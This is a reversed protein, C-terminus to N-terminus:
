LRLHEETLRWMREQNDVSQSFRSSSVPQKRVWYHGTMGEVEKSSALYVTTAAGIEPEVLFDSTFRQIFKVFATDSGGPNTNVTGPNLANVTVPLGRLRRALAYTYMVNGLKSKGYAIVPQYRRESNFDTFLGFRGFRHAMSATNIIRTAQQTTGTAVLLDLLEGTLIFAAMHNVALQLELGDVSTQRPSLFQLGANNILVDLRNYTTRFQAALQKVEQQSSLDAILASVDDRGTQQRLEEMVQETKVPNRGVIVVHYGCQLLQRAAAKGIGNTAGTILVVKQDM